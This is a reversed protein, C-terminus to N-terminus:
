KYWVYKANGCDWIRDYKSAKMIEWETMSNDYSAFSKLKHKQFSVRSYIQQTNSLSFYWYNPETDELRTFGSNLYVRGEGFRKDSYTIISSPNYQKKFFSFLKSAGGVVTLGQALTMRVCEWEFSKNFRSKGMTLLMVLKNDYILGVNVSGAHHGHLHNEENFEKAQKSDIISASCQRAYIKQSLGIKNQILSLVKTIDDSEFVTILDYGKQQCATLKKLHYEKSKNGNVESHWYLGCYEIALKASSSVIDLEYPNIITKDSHLWQDNSIEEIKQHLEIEAVSRWPKHTKIDYDKVLRKISTSSLEFRAELAKLNKTKEYESIFSDKDPIISLWKQEKAYKCAESLSKREIGYSELWHYITQQGVSFIDELESISKRQYLSELIDKPPPSSRKRNNAQTSAEKHNKRSIGYEILWNRMVPNSVNYERALSSITAGFQSYSQELEEKPPLSIKKTL